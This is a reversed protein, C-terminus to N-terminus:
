HRDYGAEFLCPPELAASAAANKQLGPKHCQEAM